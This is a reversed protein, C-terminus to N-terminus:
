KCMGVADAALGGLAEGSKSGALGGVLGGAVAGPIGGGLPFAAEGALFGLSAGEAGLAIGGGAAPIHITAARGWSMGDAHDEAAAYGQSFLNLGISTPGAARAIAEANAVQGAVRQSAAAAGYIADHGAAAGDVVATAPREGPATCEDAKEDLGFWADGESNWFGTRWLRVGWSLPSLTPWWRKAIVVIDDLDTIGPGDVQPSSQLGFPDILNIPDNEVYAYINLGARYGTPDPQMFRGIEQNYFRAKYYHLGLASLRTQGTFGFYSSNNPGGIGYEDYTNIDSPNGSSTTGSILSGREDAIVFRTDITGSGIIIYAAVEDMNPGPVFRRDPTTGGTTDYHAINATGAWAFKSTYSLTLRSAPDYEVARSNVSTLRNAADYNYTDSGDDSLNGRGDYSITTSGVATVQNKGNNTYAVSAASPSPWVYADNSTTRSVIQFAPNYTYGFTVDNATGSLDHQLSVLWPRNVGGSVYSYNTAVGNARGIQTRRGLDDYSYTTLPTAPAQTIATVQGYLNYQYLAQIPSADPWTLSTRQGALDYGYQITGAWGTEHTVRSLADYQWSITQATTAASLRRNLNDYTYTVNPTTGPATITTVRNLGDFATTFTEGGRNRYSTLNSAADYGYSQYDTTSSNTGTANPFRLRDLRDFGDYVFTSRHSEGDTLTLVRGNNTYTAAETVVATTGNWGRQLSTRQSAADYGNRTIRDPGSTGATAPTCASAPPSAFTAPNMRVASCEVRGLSDYKTQNLSYTTGGAAFASRIPRGVGDYVTTRQQLSVFAAWNPDTFGNVTGREVLTVRGAADYTYRVARNKLAGAGDPDPGVQGILRRDADYRSQFTDGTGSLPGDVSVTDGNPDYSFATTASLSGNGSRNTVSTPLLNNAVGTAGYVINTEVEESTGNCSASTVCQSVNTPLRVYTPAQVIAGLYDKFWAYRSSYTIRTQPRVAGTSPAPMTVSLLGGHSSSWSYDTVRGLADTSTTPLNCTVRNSCTAPFTASTVIPSLGSGSKPTATTTLVNGRDDYTYAVSNGEPLTASALRGSSYTYNTTRNLPDRWSLLTGDTLSTRAVSANSAPDTITTSRVGSADSYSYNWVDSGGGVNVAVVSSGSYIVTLDNLTSGPLKVGTMRGSSYTYSTVDGLTDTTTSTTASQGYTATPWTRSFTCSTAEPDCYDTAMNYGTVRYLQTWNPLQSESSPSPGQVYEVKLAYGFNNSVGTLRFARVFPLSGEITALQYAYNIVEGNPRTLSIARGLTTGADNYRDRFQGNFVVETGDAWTWTFDNGSKVLRAGTPIVPDFTSGSSTFAESFGGASVIYQSGSLVITSTLNDRWGNGAFSRSYTLAGQGPQGIVVDTTSRNFTGARVDVGREDLTYRTPPPVQLVSQARAQGAAGLASAALTLVALSAGSRLLSRM